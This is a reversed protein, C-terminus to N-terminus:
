FCVSLVPKLPEKIAPAEVKVGLTGNAVWETTM